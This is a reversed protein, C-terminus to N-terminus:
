AAELENGDGTLRVYIPSYAEQQTVDVLGERALQHPRTSRVSRGVVTCEGELPTILGSATLLTTTKGAGNPGLLAVVEGADVHLDLDRVVAVGDYGACLGSIELLPSM